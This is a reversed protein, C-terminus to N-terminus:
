LRQATLPSLIDVPIDLVMVKAVSPPSISTVLFGGSLNVYTAATHKGPWTLSAPVAAYGGSM